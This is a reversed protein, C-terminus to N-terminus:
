KHQWRDRPELVTRPGDGDLWARAETSGMLWTDWFATSLALIVRHHNPNRATRDGPLPRDTFASHEADFLVVEYKGGPPLAPYVALRSEVDSNGIVSVDRTGTMLMWPLNVNGFARAPKGARPSSPSFAIAARIRPDTLTLRGAGFSQGSVAQTTMAGFSHGSMGVKTMDLRQYLDHGEATNWRTLEDLVASVDRARLMLNEGNAAQEMSRMRRRLPVDRWVGTDSGLHQLFVAVYGRGAWHDGLYACTERSGGLGHSFLVLPAPRRSEPLYLRVPINRHRAADHVTVDRVEVRADTPLRLPDYAYSSCAYGVLFATLAFRRPVAPRLWQSM